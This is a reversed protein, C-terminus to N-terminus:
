QSARGRSSDAGPAPVAPREPFSEPDIEKLVARMGAPEYGTAVMKGVIANRLTSYDVKGNFRREVYRRLVDRAPFKTLWTGDELASELVARADVLRKDISPEDLSGMLNALREASAEIRKVLAATAADTGRRRGLDLVSSLESHIGERVSTFALSDVVDRASGKLDASVTAPSEEVLTLDAVALAVHKASLLYNEIHYVDWRYLQDPLVKSLDGQAGDGDVIAYFRSQLVGAIAPDELVDLLGRVRVNDRGSIINVREAFRPFLKTVLIRDFGVADLDKGGGGEMLVFRGAPRYAAVDGVLAVLMRELDHDSGVFSAQNEDSELAVAPTLHVIQYDPDGVLPRLIADSHTVLIMQNGAAEGIHRRYFDPLHSVLAPNLHLEPEDIMILSNRPTSNRLRLYGYLIEKEGSSLENLDHHAGDILTVVFEPMGSVPLHVGGYTKDPFFTDFLERLSEDLEPRDVVGDAGIKERVLSMFYASAIESKIGQYKQNTNYLSQDGRGLSPEAFNVNVGGVQERSYVRLASHYDIIGLHAPRYTSFLIQPLITESVVRPLEGYIMELRAVFAGVAVCACFNEEHESVKDAVRRALTPDAAAVILRQDYVQANDGQQRGMAQRWFYDELVGKANAVLYEIEQRALEFHADIYLPLNTDRFLTRLENPAKASLQFEQFLFDMENPVYGGSFSKLTRIADLVSSKGSGNPGAIMVFNGLGNLSVNKLARFNRVEIAELRM